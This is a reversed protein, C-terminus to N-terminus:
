SCEKTYKDEGLSDEEGGTLPQIVKVDSVAPNKVPNSKKPQLAKGQKCGQQRHQMGAWQLVDM